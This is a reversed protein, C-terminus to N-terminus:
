RRYDRVTVNVHSFDGIKLGVFVLLQPADQGTNVIVIKYLM